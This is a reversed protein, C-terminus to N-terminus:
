TPPIETPIQDPPPAGAETGEAASLIELQASLAAIIDGTSTEWQYRYLEILTTLASPFDPEDDPLVPM